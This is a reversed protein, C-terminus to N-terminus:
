KRVWIIFLVDIALFFFVPLFLFFCNLCKKGESKKVWDM